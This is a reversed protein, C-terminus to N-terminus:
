YLDMMRCCFLGTCTVEDDGSKSRSQHYSQERMPRPQRNVPSPSQSRGNGNVAVARGPASRSRHYSGLLRKKHDRRVNGRLAVPGESESDRGCSTSESDRLMSEYGSSTGSCQHGTIPRLNRKEDDPRAADSNGSYDSSSGTLKAQTIKSYPSSFSPDCSVTPQASSQLSLKRQSTFPKKSVDYNTSSLSRTIHSEKISNGTRDVYNWQEQTHQNIEKESQETVSNVNKSSSCSLSIELDTKSSGNSLPFSKIERVRENLSAKDLNSHHQHPFNTQHINPILDDSIARDIVLPTISPFLNTRDPKQFSSYTIMDLSWIDDSFGHKQTSYIKNEYDCNRLMSDVSGTRKHYGFFLHQRSSRYKNIEPQNSLHINSTGDSHNLEGLHQQKSYNDFNEVDKVDNPYVFQNPNRTKHIQGTGTFGTGKSRGDSRAIISSDAFSSPFRTPPCMRHLEEYFAALRLENMPSISMTPEIPESKISLVDDSLQEEDTSTHDQNSVNTLLSRPLGRSMTSGKGQFTNIPEADLDAIKKRIQQSQERLEALRKLKIALVNSRFSFSHKGELMQQQGDSYFSQGCGEEFASLQSYDYESTYDDPLSVSELKESIEEVYHDENQFYLNDESYVRYPLNKGNFQLQDVEPLPNESLFSRTALWTAVIDEESVQVSSDQMETEEELDDQDTQEFSDYSHLSHLARILDNSKSTRDDEEDTLNIDSLELNNLMSLRDESNANSKEHYLRKNTNHKSHTETSSLVEQQHIKSDSYGSGSKAEITFSLNNEQKTISEGASFNRSLDDGKVNSEKSFKRDQQLREQEVNLLTPKAPHVRRITDSVLADNKNGDPSRSNFTDQHELSSSEPLDIWVESMKEEPGLQPSSSHDQVWRRIMSRKIDDHPECAAPGDVWQEKQFHQLTKSDFKLKTFRPGDVWLEDSPVNQERKGTSIKTPITSRNPSLLNQKTLEHRHKINLKHPVQVSSGQSAQNRTMQDYPLSGLSAKVQNQKPVQPILGTRTLYRKQSRVRAGITSSAAFRFASAGLDKHDLSSLQSSVTKAPTQSLSPRPFPKQVRQSKEKCLLRSEGGSVDTNGIFIATVCSQESGSTYDPDSVRSAAEDESIADSKVCPQCVDKSEGDESAQSTFHKIKKRRLRQMRSALEITFLTESVNDASLSIHAIMATRCALNGLAMTLLKTFNNNRYPVHKQGNLLALLVSGLGSLTLTQSTAGERSTVHKDYSGFDFLYLRSRGGAVGGKSKKESRCQYVHLIYCFLSNLRDEGSAPKHRAKLAVDLFYAAKETNPVQLECLRSLPDGLSTEDRLLMGPSIGGEESAYTFDALLDKITRERGAVEVASVRVSFRSGSKDKQDNILQFLWSIACPILGVDRPSSNRGLMTTTKGQGPYGFPFVCGDTGNIVAYLIETLTTSYVEAQSNEPTFIHDFAFMKPTKAGTQRPGCNSTGSETSFTSPDYVAVQKKKTDVTLCNPAASTPNIRLVVKVRGSSERRSSM